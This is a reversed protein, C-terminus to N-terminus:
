EIIPHPKFEKTQDFMYRYTVAVRTKETGLSEVLHIMKPNFSGIWTMEMNDYRNLPQIHKAAENIIYGEVGKGQFEPVVGFVVGFMKRCVGRYRLWAFRIMEIWGLKGNNIHKFIQNIEPLMIFFAIPKGNYYAFWIIDEDMIPKITKMISMAQEKAMPKFGAHKGWSNNYVERFQEAYKEIESKKLHGASYAPDRAIRQSKEQYKDAITQRVPYNYYYQEYFNKFGYGEFLKRYYPPNYNMCYVPETFGNVLLGWWRDKEGFNIPGDMAEMGNGSLWERAKDFMLNAVSQDDICEFFGIGGTPQEFGKGGSKRNYFAAIRACPAGNKYLVWRIADGQRFFKNKKRDFVAEIDKDLPRIWQDDNKYIQVPFDLFDKVDKKDIVQKFIM